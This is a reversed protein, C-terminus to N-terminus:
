PHAAVKTVFLTLQIGVDLSTLLLEGTHTLILIGRQLEGPGYHEKLAQGTVEGKM